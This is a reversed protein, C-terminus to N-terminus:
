IILNLLNMLHKIRALASKQSRVADMMVGCGLLGFQVCAVNQLHSIKLKGMNQLQLSQSILTCASADIHRRILAM